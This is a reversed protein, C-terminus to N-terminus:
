DTETHCGSDGKKWVCVCSERKDGWSGECGWPKCRPGQTYELCTPMGLGPGDQGLPFSRRGQILIQLPGLPRSTWNYRYEISIWENNWEFYHTFTRLHLVHWCFRRYLTALLSSSVYTASRVPKRHIWRAFLVQKLKCFRTVSSSRFPSRKGQPLDVETSRYGLMISWPRHALAQTLAIHYKTGRERQNTTQVRARCAPQGLSRSRHSDIIEGKASRVAWTDRRYM